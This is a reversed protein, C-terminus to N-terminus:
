VGAWRAGIIQARVSSAIREKMGATAAMFPQELYKAQGVEHHYDLREHQILAYDSAAGGYGFTVEAGDAKIKPQNVIASARLVGLDVPVLPHSATMIMEAEVFIANAMALSSRAAMAAMRAQMAQAGFWQVSMGGVAM